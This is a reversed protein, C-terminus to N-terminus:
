AHSVSQSVLSHGLLVPHSSHPVVYQAMWAELQSSASALSLRDPPEPCPSAGHCPLDVAAVTTQLRAALRVALSTWNQKSGFLGHLLILWPRANSPLPPSFLQFALM